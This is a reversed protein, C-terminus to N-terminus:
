RRGFLKELEALSLSVYTPRGHNCQGAAPTVEMERLLANMEDQNLIRGARVSNHCSMTALVHGLKDEIASSGGLTVLEEAVDAILPKIAADSLLAPVERVMVAGEGFGELYLGLSHLAEELQLLAEIQDAPLEVIEPILLAQSAIQGALQQEKMKEMVLREHAAHQDVLCVGDETEALIYTKHLQARAAGLPFARLNEAEPPPAQYRAQPHAEGLFGAAATQLPAQFSAAHERSAASVPSPRPYSYGSRGGGSAFVAGSSLGAAPGSPHGLHRLATQGGEDTAQMAAHRLASSLAGVILGRVCASDRFRVEAKAPHVNVDVETTPLDIFLAVIPHRGRPLMDQYGARVAGLIQRDRVPRNNVFLYMQSTTPRNMTPLGALGRLHVQERTADIPVAERAFSNGILGALRAQQGVDNDPQAALNLLNKGTDSLRFAITPCAMALRKVVDVCQAAETKRTKLFKLRAPISGFLDSIEIKTGIDSAAPQVAEPTGHAVRLHWGHADGEIRSTIDVIAVSAISPLAEGRFGFHAIALLDDDALKSTAHRTVALAMDEASMGHGNDTVSLGALGGEELTVDIRSAGADIANEVLEKLASAPREIVEGAAIQNILQEPLLRILPPM